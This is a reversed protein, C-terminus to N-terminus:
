ECRLLLIIALTAEVANNLTIILLDGLSLGLYIAMHEGCWDFLKELPIISLFCVSGCVCFGDAFLSRVQIWLIYACAFTTNEHWHKFHAAWAFPLFIIMANLDPSVCYTEVVAVVVSIPTCSSFIIAKVSQVFGISKRGHGNFRGWANKSASALTKIPPRGVNKSNGSQTHSPLSHVDANTLVRQLGVTQEEDVRSPKESLPYTAM